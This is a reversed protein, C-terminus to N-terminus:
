RFLVLLILVVTLFLVAVASVVIQVVQKRREDHVPNLTIIPGEATDDLWDSIITEQHPTPMRSAHGPADSRPQIRPATLPTPAVNLIPLNSLAAVLEIPAQYRDEPRKAMLKRLIDAVDTPVEPRLEEVPTPEEMWHKLLKEVPAAQPYPVQGTLLYYFTCGLSYLDSRIDTQHADRAQEPSMFDPTGLTAQVETIPDASSDGDAHRALGMDLIKIVATEGEMEGQRSRSTTVLLNSPKIDRHVLGREHAHQLGLAAQRMYDCAVAVPLPGSNKVLRALDIGPVYELAIYRRQGVEGADYAAVINPHSLKAAAEIERQFRRLADRSEVRDKRIIKLAVTRNLVRHFAKFVQGMGGEGLRELLVYPGLTLERGRGQFVQNIQYPTLWGRQLLERALSRPERFRPQLDQVVEKLLSPKLSGSEELATLLSSISNVPM